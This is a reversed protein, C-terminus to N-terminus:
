TAPKNLWEIIQEKTWGVKIIDIVSAMNEVSESCLNFNTEPAEVYDKLVKQAEQCIDCNDEYEARPIIKVNETPIKCMNAIGEIQSVVFKKLNEIDKLNEIAIDTNISAYGVSGAGGYVAADKVEFYLGITIATKTDNM